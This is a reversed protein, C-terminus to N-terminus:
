EIPNKLIEAYINALGGSYVNVLEKNEALYWHWGKQIILLQLEVDMYDVTNERIANNMLTEIEFSDYLRDADKFSSVLYKALDPYRAKVIIEAYQKNWHFDYDTVVFETNQLVLYGTSSIDLDNKIMGYMDAYYFRDSYDGSNM